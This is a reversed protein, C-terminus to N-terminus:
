ATLGLVGLHIGIDERCLVSLIILIWALNKKRILGYVGLGALAGGLAEPHPYTISGFSFSSFSLLVGCLVASKKNLFQSCILYGLLGAM